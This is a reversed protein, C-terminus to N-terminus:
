GRRFVSDLHALLRPVIREYAYLYRWTPNGHVMVVPKGDRPGEDVYDM